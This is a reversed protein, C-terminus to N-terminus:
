SLNIGMPIEIRYGDLAKLDLITAQPDVNWLNLLDRMLVGKFRYNAKEFPDLVSNEVMGVSEIMDRDMVFTDGQNFSQIRGSVTLIPESKPLPLQALGPTLTAKTIRTYGSDFSPHCSSLILGSLSLCLLAPIINKM